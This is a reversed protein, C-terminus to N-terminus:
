NQKECETKQWINRQILLIAVMADVKKGLAIIRKSSKVFLDSHDVIVVTHKEALDIVSQFVAKKENGSLGALPEDLVLLLNSLQTSLVRVMRLRQM